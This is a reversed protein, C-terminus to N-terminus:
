TAIVIKGRVHGSALDRIADPVQDLTIVRDIAPTLSGAEILARLADLDTTNPKAIFTGLRQRVFLSVVMAGLQRHIGGTWRGGGEGGVIVLTGDRTLARRLQSLPRNGGIDLVLDYRQDDDTIDARTYDIVHDAGISRVLELKQTSCVGTVNAGLTKAIQVAFTGVGGSAGIILVRQGSRVHGRYRLAQLATVASVPVAAAQEFTLNAPMRALQDPRASAYEAFAASCTGFVAEGPRLETVNVGAAEVVGALESGLGATKPKRLGYGAGRILYPLGAMIHWVGRDLGAARVRVLVEEDGISPLEVDELRLVEPSGYRERVIAQMTRGSGGAPTLTADTM